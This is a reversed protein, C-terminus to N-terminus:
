TGLVYDFDFYVQCINGQLATVIEPSFWAHLHGSTIKGISPFVLSGYTISIPVRIESKSGNPMYAIDIYSASSPCGVDVVGHMHQMDFYKRCGFDQSNYGTTFHNDRSDVPKAIKSTAM